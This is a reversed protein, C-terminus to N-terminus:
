RVIVMRRALETGSDDLLAVILTLPGPSMALPMHEVADALTSFLREAAITEDAKLGYRRPPAFKSQSVGGFGIPLDPAASPSEVQIREDLEKRVHSELYIRTPILPNQDGFVREDSALWGAVVFSWHKAEPNNPTMLIRRRRSIDGRFVVGVM